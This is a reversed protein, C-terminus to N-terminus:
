SKDKLFLHRKQPALDAAIKTILVRVLKTMIPM